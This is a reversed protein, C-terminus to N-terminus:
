HLSSFFSSREGSSDPTAYARLLREFGDLVFLFRRQQLIHVLTQIKEYISSLNQPNVTRNSIYILAQDLFMGFTIDTEYFSWWLVGEPQRDPSTNPLDQHIWVWTLSSKGMGGMALFTLLQQEDKQWWTNLLTREERRGTFNKSPSLPACFIPLTASTDGPLLKLFPFL